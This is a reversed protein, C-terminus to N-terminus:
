NTTIHKWLPSKSSFTKLWKLINKQSPEILRQERKMIELSQPSKQLLLSQFKEYQGQPLCEYYGRAESALVQKNSVDEEKLAQRFLAEGMLFYLEEKRDVIEPTQRSLFPRGDVALEEYQDLEYYCQLKNILIKESVEKDLVMQYTSLAKEYQNGQLYIDGLIGLFYESLDSNPYRDM